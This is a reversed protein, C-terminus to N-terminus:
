EIPELADDAGGYESWCRDVTARAVDWGFGRRVLYGGLRDRFARVDLGTLARARRSALRYAADTDSIEEVASRALQVDVGFGRLEQVLLRKGRPATRDRADTWSRAFEADDVLKLARLREITEDILTPEFKRMALRRRIERESRPRRALLAAAADLALRKRDAAVLADLTLQDITAGPRLDRQKATARAIEVPETGDIYLTVRARRRPTREIATIIV